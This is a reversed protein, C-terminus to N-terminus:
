FLELITKISTSHGFKSAIHYNPESYLDEIKTPVEPFLKKSKNKVFFANSGTAANCCILCYGNNKFLKVFSSLSAGFYDDNNYVHDKNYKIVFELPPFFKANYEVIFVDPYFNNNLLEEVIYFDNGDLDISILNFKNKVPNNDNILKIINEKTVWSQKFNFDKSKINAILKEGGIWLGSWGMLRLFLTNNETGNGVGIELFNGNKINLRQLIEFTIGDEDSQSFIKKGFLCLPNKHDMQRKKYDNIILNDSLNIINRIKKISSILSIM